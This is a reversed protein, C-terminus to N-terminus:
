DVYKTNKILAKRIAHISILRVIFDQNSNWTYIYKKIPKYFFRYIKYNDLNYELLSLEVDERKQLEEFLTHHTGSWLKRDTHSGPIALCIKIKDM